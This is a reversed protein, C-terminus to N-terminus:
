IMPIDSYRIAGLVTIGHKARSNKTPSALLVVAQWIVLQLSIISHLKKENPFFFYRVAFQLVHPVRRM